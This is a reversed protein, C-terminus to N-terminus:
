SRCSHTPGAGRRFVGTWVWRLSVAGNNGGCGGAEGVGGCQELGLVREAQASLLAGRFPFVRTDCRHAKRDALYHAHRPTHRVAAIMASFVRRAGEAGWPM